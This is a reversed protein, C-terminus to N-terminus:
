VHLECLVLSFYGISNCAVMYSNSRAKQKKLRSVLTYLTLDRQESPEAKPCLDVSDTSTCYFTAEQQIAKTDWSQTQSEWSKQPSM